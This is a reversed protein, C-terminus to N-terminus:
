FWHDRRVANVRLGFQFISNLKNSITPDEFDEKRYIHTFDIWINPKWQWSVGTQLMLWNRQYGQLFTHGYDGIRSTYDRFINGGLNIGESDMGQVASFLRTDFSWNLHPRYHLEAIYERFNAGFAHALPQRYHSYSSSPTIGAGSSDYHSYTFPRVWNGELRVDLNSIGLFDILKTGAQVGFKNRFSGFDTYKREQRLGLYVWMSDLDNRVDSLLFDDIYVQGYFAASQGAIWRWNMGLAVKDPDGIHHEVARYFIIPNLYHADFGRRSQTDTRGFVINEFLGLQFRDTINISLTHAAMFKADFMRGGYTRLPFDVLRAFINQYHLKWIQTNLKLFLYNNSYDSLLLSRNGHGIFNRDQGFQIGINKTAQFALYGRATFYDYGDQKFPINWGEGPIADRQESAKRMVYRPFRSQNDAMYSYFGVKKNIMGRVELGRTNQYLWIDRDNERGTQMNIVPNLVLFFEEEDVRYFDTPTKYFHRLVPKRSSDSTVTTWEINSQLIQTIMERDTHSLRYALSDADELFNVMGKREIPKLASHFHHSNQGSKIELREIFQHWEHNSPLYSSQAFSNFYSFEALLTLLIYRYAKQMIVPYNDSKRDAM